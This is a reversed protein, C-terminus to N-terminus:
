SYKGVAYTTRPFTINQCTDTRRDNQRDVGLPTSWGPGPQPTGRSPPPYSRSLPYGVKPLGRDSRAPPVGTLTYGQQPTGWRLYGGTLLPRPTGRSPPIWRPYCISYKIRRPRYAEQTWASSEQQVSQKLVFIASNCCCYIRSIQVPFYNFM